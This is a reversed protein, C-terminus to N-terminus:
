TMHKQRKLLSQLKQIDRAMLPISFNMEKRKVVGDCDITLYARKDLTDANEIVKAVRKEIRNKM